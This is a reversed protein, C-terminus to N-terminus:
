HESEARPSCKLVCADCLGGIMPPQYILPEHLYSIQASREKIQQQCKFEESEARAKAQATVTRVERHVADERIVRDRVIEIEAKSAKLEADLDEVQEKYKETTVEEMNHDHAASVSSQLATLFDVRSVLPSFNNRRQLGRVVPEM